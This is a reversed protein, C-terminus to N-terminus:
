RKRKKKPKIPTSLAILTTEVERELTKPSGERQEAKKAEKEGGETEKETETKEREEQETEEIKEEEMKNEEEKREQEALGGTAEGEGWQQEEEESGTPSADYTLAKIDDEVTMNLFVEWSIPLTFTHLAEELLNNIL